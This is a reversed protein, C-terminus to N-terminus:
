RPVQGNQVSLAGRSQSQLKRSKVGAKQKQLCRMVVAGRAEAALEAVAQEPGWLSLAQM